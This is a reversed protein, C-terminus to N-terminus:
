RLEVEDFQSNNNRENLKFYIIASLIGMLVLGVFFYVVKVLVKHELYYNYLLEPAIKENFILFYDIIDLVFGIIHIQKIKNSNKAIKNVIINPNSDSKQIHLYGLYGFIIILGM